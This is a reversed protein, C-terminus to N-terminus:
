SVGTVRWIELDVIKFQDRQTLRPSGFTGCPDSRGILMDPGIFIAPGGGGGIALEKMGAGIFHNNGHTGRNWPFAQYTPDIRFVFIHGNGQFGPAPKLECSLFAGFRDGEDNRVALVLPCAGRAKDYLTLFSCGDVSLRYVLAWHHERWIRPMGRRIALVTADDMLLSPGGILEIGPLEAPIVRVRGAPLSGVSPAHPIDEEESHRPRASTADPIDSLSPLVVHEKNQIATAREDILAGFRELPAKMGAFYATQVSDVDYHTPMYVIALLDLSNPDDADLMCEIASQHPILSHHIHDVLKIYHPKESRSTPQFRLEDGIVLLKGPVEGCAEGYISADIPDHGITSSPMPPIHLRDGAFVLDNLLKNCQKVWAVTVDFHLAISM